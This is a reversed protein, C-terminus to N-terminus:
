KDKRSFHLEILFSILLGLGGFFLTSAGLIMEKFGREFEGSYDIILFFGVLLGLGLGCFLLALKLSTFIGNSSKSVFDINVKFDSDVNKLESMKEIINLREPRRVYLDFIRYICIGIIALNAPIMIFDLM